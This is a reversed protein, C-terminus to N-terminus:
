DAPAPVGFGQRVAAEAAAALAKRDKFDAVRLLPHFVVQV